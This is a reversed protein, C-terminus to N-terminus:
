SRLYSILAYIDLLDLQEYSPMRSDPNHTRPNRIQRVVWFTSRRRFVDTLDPGAMGGQGRFRHCTICRQQRFLDGGDPIFALMGLLLFCAFLVLGLLAIRKNIRNM